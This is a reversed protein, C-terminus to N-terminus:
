RSIGSFRYNPGPTSLAHVNPKRFHPGVLVAYCLMFPVLRTQFSSLFIGSAMLTCGMLASVRPGFRKIWSGGIKLGICQFIITLPMVSVADAQTVTLQSSAPPTPM